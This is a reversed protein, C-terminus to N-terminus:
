VERANGAVQIAADFAAGAAVNVTMVSVDNVRIEIKDGAVLNIRETLEPEAITGDVAFVTAM